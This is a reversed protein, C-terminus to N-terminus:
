THFLIYNKMATKRKPLFAAVRSAEWTKFNTFPFANADVDLRNKTGLEAPLNLLAVLWCAFLNNSQLIDFKERKM